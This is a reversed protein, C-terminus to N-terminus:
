IMYRVLLFYVKSSKVASSSTKTKMPTSSMEISDQKYVYETTPITSLPLQGITADSSPISQYQHSKLCPCCCCNGM